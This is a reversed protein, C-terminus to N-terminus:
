RPVIEFVHWVYPGDLVTGVHRYTVFQPAVRSSRIDDGTGRVVFKRTEEDGCDHVKTWLMLKGDQMAVHSAEEGRDFRAKLEVYGGAVSLGPTLDFKWMQM